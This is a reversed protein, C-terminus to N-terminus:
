SDAAIWRSRIRARVLNLRMLIDMDAADAFGIDDGGMLIAACGANLNEKIAGSLIVACPRKEGVM